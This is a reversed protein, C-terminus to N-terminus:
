DDREIQLKAAVDKLLQENKGQEAWKEKLRNITDRNQAIRRGLRIRAVQRAKDAEDIKAFSQRLRDGPFAVGVVLIVLGFLAIFKYLNDTPLTPFVTAM